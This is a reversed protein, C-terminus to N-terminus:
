LHCHKRINAPTDAEPRLARQKQQASLLANTLFVEVFSTSPPESKATCGAGISYLNCYCDNDDDDEAADVCDDDHCDVDDYANDDDADTDADVAPDGDLFRCGM